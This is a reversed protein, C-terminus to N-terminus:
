DKREDDTEDDNAQSRHATWVGYAELMPEWRKAEFVQLEFKEWETESLLPKVRDRLLNAELMVISQGYMGVQQPVQGHDLILDAFKQRTEAAVLFHNDSQEFKLLASEIIGKRRERELSQFRVRQEDILMRRLTKRFLSKEGYIGLQEAMCLLKVERMLEVYRQQELPKSTLKPRLEAARSVHQEIDGRGALRLKKKQPETLSVRSDIIGIETALIGEVHSRFDAATPHQLEELRRVGDSVPIWRQYGFVLKDFEREPLPSKPEIVDKVDDDMRCQASAILCLSWVLSLLLLSRAHRGPIAVRHRNLSEYNSLM